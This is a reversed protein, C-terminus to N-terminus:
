SGLGHIHPMTLLNVLIILTLLTFTSLLVLSLRPAHSLWPSLKMLLQEKRAYVNTRTKTRSIRIKTLTTPNKCILQELTAIGPSQLSGKRVKRTLLRLRCQVPSLRVVIPEM